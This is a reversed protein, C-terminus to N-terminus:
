SSHSKESVDATLPNKAGSWRESSELVHLLAYNRPLQSYGTTWQVDDDDGGDLIGVM